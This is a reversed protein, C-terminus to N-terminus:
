NELTDKTKTEDQCGGGDIHVLRIEHYILFFHHLDKNIHLKNQPSCPKNLLIQNSKQVDDDAYGDPLPSTKSDIYISSM